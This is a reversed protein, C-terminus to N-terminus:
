NNKWIDFHRRDTCTHGNKKAEAEEAMKKEQRRFEANEEVDAPDFIWPEAVFKKKILDPKKGMRRLSGCEVRNTEPLEDMTLIKRALM